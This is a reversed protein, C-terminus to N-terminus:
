RCAKLVAVATKVAGDLLAFIARTDTDPEFGRVVDRAIVRAYGDRKEQMLTFQKRTPGAPGIPRAPGTITPREAAGCQHFDAWSRALSESPYSGIVGGEAKCAPSGACTVVWEAAELIPATM